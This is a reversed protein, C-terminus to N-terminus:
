LMEESSNETLEKEKKKGRGRCERGRRMEAKYFSEHANDEAVTFSASLSHSEVPDRNQVEISPFYTM